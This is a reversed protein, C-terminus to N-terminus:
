MDRGGLPVSWLGTGDLFKTADNPPQPAIGAQSSVWGCVGPALFRLLTGAPITGSNTAGFWNMVTVSTSSPISQVVVWEMTSVGTSVGLVMYQTMWSTDAVSITVNSGWNPMTFQATTLTALGLKVWAADKRLYMSGDSESDGLGATLGASLDTLKSQLSYSTDTSVATGGGQMVRKVLLWFESDGVEPTNTM